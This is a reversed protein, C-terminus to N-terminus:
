EGIEIPTAGDHELREAEARILAAIVDDRM